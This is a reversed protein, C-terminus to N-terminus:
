PSFRNVASLWFGNGLLTLSVSTETRVWVKPLIWKRNQKAQESKRQEHHLLSAGHQMWSAGHQSCNAYNHVPNARCSFGFWSKRLLFKFIGMFTPQQIQLLSAGHQLLIAGHQLLISGHHLLIAGHQMLNARHHLLKCWIVNFKCWTAVIKCLRIQTNSSPCLSAIAPLLHFNLIM